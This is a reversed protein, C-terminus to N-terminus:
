LRKWRWILRRKTQPTLKFHEGIRQDEIWFIEGAAGTAVILQHRRTRAIKQNTFWDQLKVASRMGIPQFRDGVRWHRLVVQAGVQDADFFECRPRRADKKGANFRWQFRVGDFICEGARKGLSVVIQKENFTVPTHIQLKVLGGRDRSIAALPSISVPQGPAARLREIMEFDAVLNHQHLQRQLARRQIAVPLSAFPLPKQSKFHAKTVGALVEAEAGAIEMLRLVTKHVAPQFRRRLLPLLEHRIRNRLIDRSANSADERFRIKKERTYRELEARGVDLLPRILQVAADVPSPSRRKMGALGEGGSGRLLRLFFLEVQDDAHHALVITSLRLRRATRALFEHRLERAAMEISLGRQKAHARVDARKAVCPLKLRAALSRVFREDGDSARGRLQHNLHAVTLKWRHKITLAHLLHLLAVSDLGGSVAVLIRQGRSLLKRARISQEVHDLLN